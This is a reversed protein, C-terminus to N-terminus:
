ENSIKRKKSPPRPPEPEPVVGHVKLYETKRKKTEVEGVRVSARTRGQCHKCPQNAIPLCAYTSTRLCDTVAKRCAPLDCVLATRQAMEEDGQPHNTESRRCENNECKFAINGCIVRPPRPHATSQCLNAACAWTAAAVSAGSEATATATATDCEEGKLWAAVTSQHHPSLTAYGALNEPDDGIAQALWGACNQSLHYWLHGYHDSGSRGPFNALNGVRLEGKSINLGCDRGRCLARGTPAVGVIHQPPQQREQEM